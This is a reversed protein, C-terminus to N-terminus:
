FISEIISNEFEASVKPSTINYQPSPCTSYAINSSSPLNKAELLSNSAKGALRVLEFLDPKALILPSFTLEDNSINKIDGM